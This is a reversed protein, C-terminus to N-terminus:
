WLEGKKKEYKANWDIVGVRNRMRSEAVHQVAVNQANVVQLYKWSSIHEAGQM